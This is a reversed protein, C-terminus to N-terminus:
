IYRLRIIADWNVQTEIDTKDTLDWDFDVGEAPDTQCESNKRASKKDRANKIAEHNACLDIISVNENNEGHVQAIDVKEVKEGVGWPDYVVENEVSYKSSDKKKRSDTRILQGVEEKTVHKLDEKSLRCGM